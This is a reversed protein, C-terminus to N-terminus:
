RATEIAALIDDNSRFDGIGLVATENAFRFMETDNLPEVDLHRLANLIADPEWTPPMVINGNDVVAAGECGDGGFYETELYALRGFTSEQRLFAILEETLYFFTETEQPVANCTWTEVLEREVPVIGFEQPLPLM